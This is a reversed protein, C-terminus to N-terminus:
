FDTTTLCTLIAVLMIIAEVPKELFFHKKTPCPLVCKPLQSLLFVLELYAQAVYPSGTPLSIPLPLLLFSFLFLSLSPSSLPFSSPFFFLFSSLLSFLFAPVKVHKYIKSRM